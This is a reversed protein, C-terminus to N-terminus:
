RPLPVDSFAFTSAAAACNAAPLEVAATLWSRANRFSISAKILLPRRLAASASANCDNAVRAISDIMSYDNTEAPNVFRAPDRHGPGSQQKAKRGTRGDAM